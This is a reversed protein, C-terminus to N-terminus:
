SNNVLEQKNVLVLRREGFAKLLIIAGVGILTFIMWIVQKKLNDLFVGGIYVGFSTGLGEFFIAIGSYTGKLNIPAVNLMSSYLVPICVLDAITLIIFSLLVMLYNDFIIYISLSGALLILTIFFVKFYNMKSTLGAVIQQFVISLGATVSFLLGIDRNNFKATGKLFMPITSSAQSSLFFFIFSMALIVLAPNNHKIDKLSKLMTKTNNSLGKVEDFTFLVMLFYIFYSIGCGIFLANFSYDAVYSGILPGIASALNFIMARLGFAEVKYKDDINSITLTRITPITLAGGLISFATLILIIIYEDAIVMGFYFIVHILLGVCFLKKHGFRDILVGGIFVLQRRLGTFVMIITAAATASFLLREKLYIAFYPFMMSYTLATLFTGILIILLQSNIIKKYKQVVNSFIM